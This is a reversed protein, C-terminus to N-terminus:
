ARVLSSAIATAIAAADDDVGDIIGSRRRTLWPFGIYHLGPLSGALGDHLPQLQDDVAALPLYGFDGGFGTTWIVSAIDNAALDVDDAFSGRGSGSPAPRSARSDSRRCGPRGAVCCAPEPTTRDHM